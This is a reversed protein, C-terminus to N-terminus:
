KPLGAILGECSRQLSTSAKLTAQEVKTKSEEFQTTISNSTNTVFDRTDMKALHAQLQAHDLTSKTGGELQDTFAAVNHQLYQWQDHADMAALHGQLRVEDVSSHLKEVAEELQCNLKKAQQKSKSWLAQTDEAFDEAEDEIKDVISALSNRAQKLNEKIENLM